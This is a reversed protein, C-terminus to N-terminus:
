SRMPSPVHAFILAVMDYKEKAPLFVNPDAIKYDLAVGNEDAPKLPNEKDANSQNVAL